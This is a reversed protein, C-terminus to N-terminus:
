GNTFIEKNYERVRKSFYNGFEEINKNKLRLKMNLLKILKESDHRLCEECIYFSRGRQTFEIIKENNVQFRLLLNQEFRQRCLICMRIPKKIACM